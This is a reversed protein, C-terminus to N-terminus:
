AFSTRTFAAQETGQPTHNNMRILTLGCGHGAKAHGDETAALRYYLMVYVRIAATLSTENDKKLSVSTCIQHLNMRERRCIERLGDWM